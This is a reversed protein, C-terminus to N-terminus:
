SIKNNFVESLIEETDEGFLPGNNLQHFDLGGDCLNAEILVPLDESDIAIDWSILRFHPFQPHINTILNRINLFNPIVVDSFQIHTSPHETYKEVYKSGDYTSSYAVPKLRGNECIGCSIGGSCANDVKANGVGMRLIASYIKVEGNKKLMSIVRITNICSPNIIELFTSQKIAAEIVLDHHIGNIINVLKERGLESNFYFVGDGGWSNVAVKVFCENTNLVKEIIENFDVLHGASDYWFNGLKYGIRKPLMVGPFMKPYYCKNDLYYAMKWDNYYPDIICRFISNPIYYKSFVGSVATYFSHSSYRIKCYQKYLKDVEERQEATLDVKPPTMARHEADFKKIRRRLAVYKLMNGIPSEM